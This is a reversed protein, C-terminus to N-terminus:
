RSGAKAEGAAATAMEPDGGFEILALGRESVTLTDGPHVLTTSDLEEVVAPGELVQGPRLDEREYIPCPVAGGDSRM